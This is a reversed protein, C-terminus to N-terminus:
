RDRDVAAHVEAGGLWSGLFAGADRMMEDVNGIGVLREGRAFVAAAGASGQALNGCASFEGNDGASGAEIKASKRFTEECSRRPLFIKALTKTATGVAAAACPQM